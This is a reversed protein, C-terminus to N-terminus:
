SVVDKRLITMNKLEDTANSALIRLDKGKMGELTRRFNDKRYKPPFTAIHALLTETTEFNNPENVHRKELNEHKNCLFFISKCFNHVFTILNYFKSVFILNFDAIYLKFYRLTEITNM